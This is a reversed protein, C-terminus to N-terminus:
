QKFLLLSWKQQFAKCILHYTNSERETTKKEKKIGEKNSEEEEKERLRYYGRTDKRWSSQDIHEHLNNTGSTTNWLFHVQM